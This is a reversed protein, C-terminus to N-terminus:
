IRTLTRCFTLAYLASPEEEWLIEACRHLTMGSTMVDDIVLVIKNRIVGPRRLYFYHDGMKKRQEFSLGVQRLGISRRGLVNTIPCQLLRSVEEGLLFSQNYGREVWRLLSIPVPVIVDPFPWGMREWQATLFAGMGRALYSQNSYKLKKVLSVAPGEYNFCAGVKSYLSPYQTCTGCIALNEWLIQCCTPCRESPDILDMSSSCHSCLVPTDPGLFDM